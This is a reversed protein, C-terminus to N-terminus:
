VESTSDEKILDMKWTVKYHGKESSEEIYKVLSQVRENIQQQLDEKNDAELVVGGDSEDLFVHVKYKKKASMAAKEKKKQITEIKM